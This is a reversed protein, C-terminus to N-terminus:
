NTLIELAQAEQVARKKGLWHRGRGERCKLCQQGTLIQCSFLNLFETTMSVLSADQLMSICKIHLPDYSGAQSHPFGPLM